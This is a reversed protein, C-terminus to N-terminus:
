PPDGRRAPGEQSDRGAGPALNRGFHRASGPIAPWGERTRRAGPADMPRRHPARVARKSGLGSDGSPWKRALLLTKGLTTRGEIAAHADAARELPFTQGITPRIKGRAALALVEEILTFNEGPASGIKTLPVITIHRDEALQDDIQGWTGSAAGHPLYRGGTTLCDFLRQSTDGGVGDFVVHAGAATAAALEEPWDPDRYNIAVEAGLSRAHDLKSRSGALAIVRAGVDAGIQVLLGGVGGAAATVVMTAGPEIGGARALGLATRGDALLAVAPQLDLGAPLRHLDNAAALARSAYGGRGGTSTIVTAGLWDPDVGEGLTAVTGGVGNGIVLPFADAPRPSTGARLQTDIFTIAAVEVTVAVEAPGPQPDPLDIAQLVEPPGPHNVIVARM